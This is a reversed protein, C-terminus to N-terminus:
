RRNKLKIATALARKAQDLAPVLWMRQDRMKKILETSNLGSGSYLACALIVVGTRGIGRSCHVITPSSGVQTNLTEEM